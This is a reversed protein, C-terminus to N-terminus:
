KTVLGPKVGKRIASYIAEHINTRLNMKTIKNNDADPHVRNSLFIYVLDEAPDAWVYTGTFGSHGFSEYSVSPCAPSPDAPNLPPKDFGAGRRNSKLPFQVATFEAVIASDIFRENGYEGGQMIMQMIIGADLADSFLGANGAVGGLLAATQDHVDGHVVQRRFSRDFETPPIRDISFRDRPHFGMTTLGLKQYFNENLYHGFPTQTLEEFTSALLIFGLDSYKYGKTVLLDSNIISDVIKDPLDDRGYLGDAIRHPFDISYHRAIFPSLGKVSDTSISTHFPIFSQLRAQHAMIDRITFDKKNSKKLRTNYFSLKKDLQIIDSDKLKMAMLTTGLIKTLSALDYIDTTKVPSYSDYDQFGYAKNLIVKGQKIVLVQAGPLAQNDIADYVLSDIVPYLDASSIMVEEPLGFSVRITENSEIGDGAKFTLGASVPLRGNVPRGGFIAQATLEQMQSNDQYSVILGELAETHRFFALSYPSAFLNLITNKVSALSDLFAAAKETINFRKQPLDSSKLFAAIVLNYPELLYSISDFQCSTAEKPLNFHDVPAYNSLMQQFSTLNTDGIVLSAIRLTDLGKLPIREKPNTLLTIAQSNAQLSIMRAEVSNLEDYLNETKIKHKVALGTEYKWELIKKCKEDILQQTIFGKDIATCINFIAQRADVPLLLIDNGANIADAEVRGIDSFDVLGKMDMGDTIILGKFGLKNRLLGELIPQSLTAISQTAADLGPVRLHSVMIGKIGRKILYKFPFLELSDILPFPKDIIPLSIHSDIDTDGHGPFHKAVAILGADQMGKMYFYAKEAVLQRDEGFSRANIVPNGPNNNIDAVPAFNIHIGMRQMERAVELGMSYIYEDSKLAGLTMQKPFSIASDLRMGLGWEGDIAIFVPVDTSDQIRNTLIAQRVPGGQFFCVGGINFDSILRILEENYVSDKNSYGRVMLLQAIRMDPTLTNFVSDVWQEKPLVQSQCPIFSLTCIIGLFSITHKLFNCPM